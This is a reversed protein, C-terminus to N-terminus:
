DYVGDAWWEGSRRERYVRYLGGGVLEVDWYDREVPEDSWWGDEMRWPGAAVRVRGDIRLRSDGATSRVQLLRRPLPEDAPDGGRAPSAEAVEGGDAEGATLVELAVPPRLVRVTLLGLGRRPQRCVPPPPPPEYPVLEFREPRHGDPARPSGVRDPGLLAFLRAVTTALRDPALATPGLLSLQASRPENPHATFAFGAVAAGPPRAELDLRVLTLLVKADTTPAPLRVGREDHGEPELSLGLELRSCALGQAELRRCLRELGARAVFLFPELAVLPWELEMGERFVPAPRRPSLPRLDLGRATAHLERGASGLRSAVEAEPLRALDGISRVGWRELTIAVRVEPALRELPLPALFPAEEGAPVVTPAGGEEAAVRAALKSGAIGARAPMGAAEAAAALARGAATESETFSPAPFHREIGTVDLYARGEGADEVRPSFSEAAELLAEQAARECEPDRGRAVLDPLLARAQPLTMGPRIGSRRVTRTAAVVRARDGQGELVALAEDKLEPESRLRAALPFLPVTLCAIRPRTM